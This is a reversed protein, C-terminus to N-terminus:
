RAVKLVPFFFEIIVQKCQIFCPPPQASVRDMPWLPPVVPYDVRTSWKGATCVPPACIQLLAM